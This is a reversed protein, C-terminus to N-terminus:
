GELRLGRSVTKEMTNRQCHLSWSHEPKPLYSCSADKYSKGGEPEEAGSIKKGKGM